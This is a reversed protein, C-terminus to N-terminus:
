ILRIAHFNIFNMKFGKIKILYILGINFSARGIQM